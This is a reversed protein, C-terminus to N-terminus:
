GVARYGSASIGARKTSGSWLTLEQEPTTHKAFQDTAFQSRPDPSRYTAWTVAMKEKDFRGWQRGFKVLVGVLRLVHSPSTVSKAGSPADM